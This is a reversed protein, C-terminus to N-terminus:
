SGPYEKFMDVKNNSNHLDSPSNIGRKKINNNSEIFMIINYKTFVLAKHWLIMSMTFVCNIENNM